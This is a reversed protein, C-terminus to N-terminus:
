TSSLAAILNRAATVRKGEDLDILAYIAPEHQTSKGNKTARYRWRYSGNPNRVVSYGCSELRHAIKRINGRDTLWNAFSTSAVDFVMDVTLAQPNELIGIAEAFEQDELPKNHYVIYNFAETKPPPAKPDFGSIDYAHLYAAVHAFGGNHYWKWLQNWYEPSLEARKKRSWAVFTRRDDEPLYIGSTKHNTTIIVGTVNAVAYKALYKEECQVIDPPSTTLTKMHEYFDYRNVEGLDRAESIRCIVSKVHSNFKAMVDKPSISVFNWPGVAHVVPALLTDKGIGQEGGLLLAHNIKIAPQQVRQALFSIIHAMEEPFLIRVLDVWPKAARADGLEQRPPFYTNYCQTGPLNIWGGEHRALRDQIIEPDGPSWTIGEVRRHRDLWVNAPVRKNGSMQTPLSANVSAAPWMRGTPLYVYQHAEMFAVFNEITAHEPIDEDLPERWKPDYQDAYHKITGMTLDTVKQCEEWKRLCLNRNYKKSGRSWRDFIEYGDEGLEHALASGVRFWIEYDDSPIVSLAANIEALDAPAHAHSKSPKPRPEDHDLGNLFQRAKYPKENSIQKIRVRYPKGKQHIFGPLRLVRPLDTVAPDSDLRKILRRQAGRFAKDDVPMDKVLWYAHWRKPSSEVVIHPQPKELAPELPAGDLDVFVARIRTINKAKRGKLDTANVTIYIGAGQKNLRELKDWHEALTGHFVRVLNPDKRKPHDDFTQFTFTNQDSDLAKLFKETDARNVLM